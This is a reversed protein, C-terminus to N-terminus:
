QDYRKMGQKNIILALGFMCIPVYPILYRAHSITLISLLLPFYVILSLTLYKKYFFKIACLIGFIQFIALILYVILEAFPLGSILFLEIGETFMKERAGFLLLIRSAGLLFILLIKNEIGFLNQAYNLNWPWNEPNVGKLYGQTLYYFICSIALVSIIM